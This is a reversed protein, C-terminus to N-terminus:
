AAFRRRVVAVAAEDDFIQLIAPPRREVHVVQLPRRWLPRWCLASSRRGGPEGDVGRDRVLACAVEGGDLAAEGGLVVDLAVAGEHFFVFGREDPTLADGSRISDSKPTPSERKQDNPHNKAVSISERLILM